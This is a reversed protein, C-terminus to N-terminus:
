RAGYGPPFTELMVSAVGTEAPAEPPISVEICSKGPELAAPRDPYLDSRREISHPALLRLTLTARNGSGGGSSTLVAHYSVGDVIKYAYAAYEWGPPQCAAYYIVWRNERLAIMADSTQKRAVESTNQAEEHLLVASILLRRDPRVEAIFPDPDRAVLPEDLMVAIRHADPDEPTPDPAPTAQCATLLLLAATVLTSVRTM